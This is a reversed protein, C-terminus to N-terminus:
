RDPVNMARLETRLGESIRQLEALRRMEDGSASGEEIRV